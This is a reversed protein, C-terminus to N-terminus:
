GSKLEYLENAREFPKKGSDRLEKRAAMVELQTLTVLAFLNTSRELEERKDEFYILKNIQFEVRLNRGTGTVEYVNPKYNRDTDTLLILSVPFEDMRDFIRYAYSFLRKAFHKEKRGQVEIHIYLLQSKGKRTSVQVLLDAYRDPSTSQPFLKKIEKDLFILPQHFDIELAIHPFYFQMFPPFYEKIV